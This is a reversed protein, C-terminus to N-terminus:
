VVTALIRDLEAQPLNCHTALSSLFEHERPAIDGDSAVVTAIETILATIETVSSFGELLSAVSDDLNRARVEKREEDSLGYQDMLNNLLTLEEDTLHGDVLIAQAVVKCTMLQDSKNM